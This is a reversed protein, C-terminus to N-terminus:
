QEQTKSIVPIYNAKLSASNEFCIKFIKTETKLGEDTNISRLLQTSKPAQLKQVDKISGSRKNGQVCSVAAM